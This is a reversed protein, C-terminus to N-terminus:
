GLGYKKKELIEPPPRRGEALPPDAGAPKYLKNLPKYKNLNPGQRLNFISNWVGVTLVKLNGSGDVLSM